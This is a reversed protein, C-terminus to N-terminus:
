ILQNNTHSIWLIILVLLSLALVYSFTSFGRCARSLSAIDYAYQAYLDIHMELELM